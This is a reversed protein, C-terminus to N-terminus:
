VGCAVGFHRMDRALFPPQSKGSFDQDLAQGAPLLTIGVDADVADHHVVPWGSLEEVVGLCGLQDDDAAM